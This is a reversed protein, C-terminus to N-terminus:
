RQPDLETIVETQLWKMLAQTVGVPQDEQLYHIGAGVDVVELNRINARAWSVDATRVLAGPTAHLLLKPTESRGLWVAWREAAGAVDAPRGDIPVDNPMKWLPKRSSYTRFPREYEALVAPELPVVVGMPLVRKVFLNLGQIMLQGIGPLRFLKFALKAGSPFDTWSLPKLITEFFAVARINREHHMAYYFGLAGGWDHGVITINRLKLAHVFEELYKAHDFFRYDIRPKQSRGMGILDPAICRGLTSLEPIINRWIFSSTPNGHLLLIPDGEGEELYHMTSGQVDVYRSEIPM